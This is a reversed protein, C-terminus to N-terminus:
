GLLLQRGQLITTNLFACEFPLEYEPFCVYDILILHCLARMGNLEVKKFKKFLFRDNKSNARKLYFPIRPDKVKPDSSTIRPHNVATHHFGDRLDYTNPPLHYTKVIVNEWDILFTELHLTIDIDFSFYVGSMPFIHNLHTNIPNTYYDRIFGYDLFRYLIDVIDKTTNLFLGDTRYIAESLGSEFHQLPKRIYTFTKFNSNRARFETTLNFHMTTGTHIRTFTNLKLDAISNKLESLQERTVVITERRVAYNSIERAHRNINNSIGENACKYIRAYSIVTGNINWIAVQTTFQFFTDIMNKHWTQMSKCSDNDSQNCQTPPKIPPMNLENRADLWRQNMFQYIKKYNDYTCIQKSAFSTKLSLILYTLNVTIIRTIWM